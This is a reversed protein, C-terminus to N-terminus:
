INCTKNILSSKYIDSKFAKLRKIKVNKFGNAFLNEELKDVFASQDYGICIVDPNIKKIVAYKNKLGGLIVEDALGSKKIKELRSEEKNIPLRGKVTGVTKDRAVVVVLFNGQRKATKLFNIHGGHFVDFTGFVLVKGHKKQM